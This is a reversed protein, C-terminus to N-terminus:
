FFRNRHSISNQRRSRSTTITASWPPYPRIGRTHTYNLLKFRLKAQRGESELAGCRQGFAERSAMISWTHRRPCGHVFDPTVGMALPQDPSSVSHTPPKYKPPTVHYKTHCSKTMNVGKTIMLQFTHLPALGPMIRAPSTLCCLCTWRDTAYPAM